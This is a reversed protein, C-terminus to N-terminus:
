KRWSQDSHTVFIYSYCKCPKSINCLSANNPHGLLICYLIPTHCSHQQIFIWKPCIEVVGYSLICIIEKSGILSLTVHVYMWSSVWKSILKFLHSQYMKAPLSSFITRGSIIEFFFFSLTSYVIITKKAKLPKHYIFHFVWYSTFKM